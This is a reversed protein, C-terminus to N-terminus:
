QTSGELEQRVKAAQLAMLPSTRAFTTMATLLRQLAAILGDHDAEVHQQQHAGAVAILVRSVATWLVAMIPDVYAFGALNVSDIAAVARRATDLDRGPAGNQGQGTAGHVQMIAVLAFTHTVLLDRAIGQELAGHLPPLADMFQEIVNELVFFEAAFQEVYAMAPTWQSALRSAREFLASAKARLAVSSTGQGIEPLIGSLFAQITLSGRLMPPLGRQAYDEIQLPWPTDVQAGPSGNFHSPSGARVSWSKDLIFVNWFANIREGEELVDAPPALDVNMVGPPNATNSNSRLKNLRCSLSLAVAANSHYRGELSRNAAFFYHALLVEAQISYIINYRPARVLAASVSQVARQLFVPEHALMSANGSFHVGWLYVANLLAPSLRAQCHEATPVLAYERFRGHHLFFGVQDAHPLFFGVLMQVVDPSPESTADLATVPTAQPILYATNQASPGAAATSGSAVTPLQLALGPQTTATRPDHLTVSPAVSDPHELEYIRAELRAINDELLQTPSRTAGDTYECDYERQTRICPGCVPRVGDCKFKRRRCNLCASGRPARGSGTTPTPNSGQASM